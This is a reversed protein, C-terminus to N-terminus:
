SGINALAIFMSDNTVSLGHVSEINLTVLNASKQVYMKM